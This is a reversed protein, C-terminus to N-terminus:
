QNSEKSENKVDTQPNIFESKIDAERLLCLLYKISTRTSNIAGKLEYYRVWSDFKDLATLVGTLYMITFNRRYAKIQLATKM